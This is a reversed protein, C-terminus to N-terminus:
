SVSVKAIKASSLKSRETAFQLKESPFQELVLHAVQNRIDKDSYLSSGVSAETGEALM